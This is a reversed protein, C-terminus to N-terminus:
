KIKKKPVSLIKRLATNFKDMPNRQMPQSIQEDTPEIDARASPGRNADPQPVVSDKANKRIEDDSKNPM